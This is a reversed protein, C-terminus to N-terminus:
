GRRVQSSDRKTRHPAVLASALLWCGLVWLLAAFGAQGAVIVIVAVALFIVGLAARGRREWTSMVRRTAVSLQSAGTLALEGAGFCWTVLPVDATPVVLDTRGEQTSCRVLSFL